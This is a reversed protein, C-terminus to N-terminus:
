WRLGSTPRPNRAAKVRARAHGPAIRLTDVLVAAVSRTGLEAPVDRRELETIWAHDFAPLRRLQAEVARGLEPLERAPLSSLRLALLDDVAATLAAVAQAEAAGKVVEDMREIRRWLPLM